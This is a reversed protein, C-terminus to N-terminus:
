LFLYLALTLLANSQNEPCDGAMLLLLLIVMLDANDFDKPLIQSLFSSCEQFPTAQDPCPKKRRNPCQKCRDEGSFVPKSVEEQCPDDKPQDPKKSECDAKHPTPAEPIQRRCFSGDPQPIYRNYM